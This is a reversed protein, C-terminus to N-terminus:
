ATSYVPLAAWARALVGCVADMQADSMDIFFPVGLLRGALMESVDLSGHPCDAFAPERHLGAGYWFRSEIGREWLAAAAAQAAQADGCVALAYAASVDGALRLRDGLGHRRACGRYRKAAKGFAQHKHRWRELEALGIAAHYESMKGNVADGVSQREGLFGHNLARHCGLTFERSTSVVAGGEGCGFAKTAHFSLVVPVDEPLVPLVKAFTDFGAAADVVVPVGTRRHFASWAAVDVPRGYPAVVIVLGARELVPDRELREPDLAWSDPEVDTFYPEYGCHRAAAATAVFTYAPCICLSRGAKARGARALIAGVIAMSGSAATTVSGPELGFHHALETELSLVLPGYNAYRRSADIRELYPIIQQTAPLQPRCVPIAISDSM